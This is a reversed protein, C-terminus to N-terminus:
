VEENVAVVDWKTDNSNYIAGLYLTKSITTTTPLASGFARFVENYSLGRATGNDKIRYILKQGNSISTPSTPANLTLTANQATIIVMDVIDVNPAVSGTATVEVTRPKLQSFTSTLQASGSVTGTPLLPTIQASGSVIGSPIGSLGSYTVQSSGSVLGAPRGSISLFQVQSSGSITETPLLPTIQAAGSVIGLPINSLGTYSVQSSGSILTTGTASITGTVVTNSGLTILTGTDTINSDSIHHGHNTVAKPIRNETLGVETGLGGQSLPGFIAVSSGSDESGEHQFVWNNNLGDYLFSSTTFGSGSDVVQLGGFREAPVSVNLVIFADGIIKASGTVSEIYAFSATGNVNINTFTQLGSFTNNIDTRAYSSSVAEFSDLRQDLSQTTTELNNLRTIASASFANLPVLIDVVQASSSVVNEVNLRTKVGTEFNTTQTADVQSSASVLGTPIDSISLFQVQSSGSVTGTPLLPIIQASSSVIGEPRNELTNWDATGGGSSGSLTYRLDYSSTLQSSGSVLGQPINTFNTYDLYYSSPNGDLLNSNEATGQIIHGGKAVVVYGSVNETFSVEISSSDLVKVSLPIIQENSGSEYIQVFPYQSNLLHNVTVTTQDTFPQSFSTVDGIEFQIGTLGSGDGYFADAYVDQTVFLSGTIEADGVFPFGSGGM